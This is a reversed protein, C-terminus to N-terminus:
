DKKFQQTAYIIIDSVTIDPTINYLRNLFDKVDKEKYGLSTLGILADNLRDDTYANKMPKLKLGKEERKTSDIKIVNHKKLNKEDNPYKQILQNFTDNIMDTLKKFIDESESENLFINFNTIM